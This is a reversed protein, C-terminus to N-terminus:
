EGRGVRLTVAGVAGGADDSFAVTVENTEKLLATDVWVMRTTAFEGKGEPLDAVGTTSDLLPAADEVLADLPEGNLTLTLGPDAGAPRYVSVRLQAYVATAADPVEVTFHEADTGSMKVRTRDGYYFTEDVKAAADAVGAQTLMATEMPALALTVEGAKAEASTEELYPTFDAKRGYRRLQVAGGGSAGAAMPLSVKQEVGALNNLVVRVTDGDRLAQVQVDPDDCRVVVRAGRFDRFFRYFDLNRTEVWDNKDTFDRPVYLVSYYAPNWGMAEPLIFPVAKKVRPHDMFTLTNRIAASVLIFDSISRKRMTREFGSLGPFHEAAILEGVADADGHPGQGLIYAGHESVVVDTADGHANVAHNQVLDLMGELPLGGTRRGSFGEGNWDLYDYVHFSYFDLKADTKAMFTAMGDFVDFGRQYFYAVSNCFGGVAVEPTLAKVAAHMALHWQALHETGHYSWHPENLPEYFAPRDFDTYGHKLTEAAVEASAALNEPLYETGGENKVQETFFTGMWTPFGNHRGHAAVTMKGEALKAFAPTPESPKLQERLFALDAFGPRQPDERLADTWNWLGYVVGLRRGFSVDLEDLLFRLRAESRVRRDFNTGQDCLSFYVTRDLESVGDIARITTPDLTVRAPEAWAISVSSAAALGVLLRRFSPRAPLRLPLEM